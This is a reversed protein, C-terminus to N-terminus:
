VNGNGYKQRLWIEFFKDNVCYEAEGNRSLRSILGDKLLVKVAYQVSSASNLAYKSIFAESTIQTAKRECAVAYLLLKQKISRTGVMTSFTNDEMDSIRAVSKRFTESTCIDGANSMSFVDNMVRQMSYTHGDMLDYIEELAHLEVTVGFKEFIAKAFETYRAKSIPGLSMSTSSQFFPRSQSNFMEQLLHSESGSFIFRCNQTKQIYTRLLAEINKEEYKAIQQFEDFAIICPRDANEICNFIEELTYKPNTIDGLSVNFSPMGKEDIGFKGTLSKLTALLTGLMKSGKSKLTNFVASGFFYTFEQLNNTSLLDIFIKYCDKLDDCGFCHYILGTKGMRRPSYLTINNGNLILRNFRETEKERDCFYEDPIITTLYFPNEKTNMMM